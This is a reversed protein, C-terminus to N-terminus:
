ENKKDGGAKSGAVASGNANAAKAKQRAKYILERRKAQILLASCEILYNIQPRSIPLCPHGSRIILM